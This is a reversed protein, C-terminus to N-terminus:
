ATTPSARARLEEVLELQGLDLLHDARPDDLLDALPETGRRRRGRSGSGRGRRRRREGAALGLADPQRRLDARLQDAHEVDEVLRRDAQVLAVVVPQDGGQAAGRSPLVTMTTSCSSSVIRAASQSTSKPGPAPTFAALDDGLPRRRLALLIAADTM